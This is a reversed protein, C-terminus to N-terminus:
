SRRKCSCRASTCNQDTCRSEDIAWRRDLISSDRRLSETHKISARTTATVKDLTAAMQDTTM